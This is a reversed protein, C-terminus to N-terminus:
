SRECDGVTVLLYGQRLWSPEPHDTLRLGRTLARAVRGGGRMTLFGLSHRAGVSYERINRAGASAFSGRLTRSPEEGGWAWAGTREMHWKGLRYAVSLANPVMIIVRKRAVRFCEALIADVQAANFYEFVGCSFVADFSQSEFPLPRTIDTRCFRGQLGLAAFM